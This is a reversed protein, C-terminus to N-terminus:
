RFDKKERCKKVVEITLSDFKQKKSYDYDDSINKSVYFDSYQISNKDDNSNEGIKIEGYVFTGAGGASVIPYKKNKKDIEAESIESKSGNEDIFFYKHNIGGDFKSSLVLVGNKPFNFVEIGNEKLLKQGCKEDYIIRLPGYYDKPIRFEKPTTYNYIELFLFTAPFYLVLPVVISLIKLIIKENSLIIFICGFIFIPATFIM